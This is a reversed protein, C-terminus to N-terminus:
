FFFLLLLLFHLTFFAREFGTAIMNWSSSCCYYCCCPWPFCHFTLFPLFRIAFWKAILQSFTYFPWYEYLYGQKHHSLLSHPIIGFFMFNFLMSHFLVDVCVVATVVLMVFFRNSNRALLCSKRTKKKKKKKTKLYTSYSKWPTKWSSYSGYFFGFDDRNTM